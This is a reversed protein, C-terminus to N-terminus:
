ESLEEETWNVTEPTLIPQDVIGDDFKYPKALRRKEKESALKMMEAEHGLLERNEEQVLLRVLGLISKDSNEWVKIRQDRTAKLANLMKDQKDSYIKYRDACEKNTRKSSEYVTEWHAVQIDFKEKEKPPKLRLKHLEDHALNMDDLAQKQEELTRDILIKLTIVQFVQLEETAMIDGHTKLQSIIQVYQHKFEEQEELNFQKQFRRWEPRTQLQQELTMRVEPKVGKINEIARRIQEIPRRLKKAIQEANPDPLHDTIYAKEANSLRGRKREGPQINTKPKRPM